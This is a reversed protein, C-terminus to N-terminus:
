MYLYYINEFTSIINPFITFFLKNLLLSAVIEGVVLTTPEMTAIIM